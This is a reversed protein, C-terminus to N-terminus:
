TGLDVRVFLTITPRYERLGFLLEGIQDLFGPLRSLRPSFVAPWVRPCGGVRRSLNRLSKSKRRLAQNCVLYSHTLCPSRTLTSGQRHSWFLMTSPLSPLHPCMGRGLFPQPTATQM